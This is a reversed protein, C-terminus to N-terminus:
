TISVSDSHNDSGDGIINSEEFDGLQGDSGESESFGCSGSDNFGAALAESQVM